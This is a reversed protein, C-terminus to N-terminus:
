NNRLLKSNSYKILICVNLSKLGLGMFILHLKAFILIRLNLLLNKVFNPGLYQLECDRLVCKVFQGFSYLYFIHELFM